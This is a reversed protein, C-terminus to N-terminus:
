LIAVGQMENGTLISFDINTDKTVHSLVAAKKDEATM